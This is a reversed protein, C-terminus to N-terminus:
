LVENGGYTSWTSLLCEIGCVATMMVLKRHLIGRCPCSCADVQLSEVWTVIAKWFM